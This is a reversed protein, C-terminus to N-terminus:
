AGTMKQVIQEVSPLLYQWADGIPIFSDEGTIREIKVKFRHEYFLTMLTESISGTERGEDVILIRKCAKVAEIIADTNLPSLWCLDILRAKITHKNELRKIAQRSLFHGNGYSIIALDEGTGEIGIEGFVIQDNGDPYDNLFLNDGKHYLDKQHYLAIPELFVVVRQAFYAQKVCEKLMLAAARPTSPCAIIIGPIERLFGIANDNHFHGGFGKQYALSPIRVVMPNTYQGSSFFSLTAAEGRLQDIANHTYALFQIEPISLLGQHAMGIATGLITQEDLLTDFVRNVGFQAQLDATVRYVGGKKGVDEGFIVAQPYQQLIESLALNIMQAMNKPQSSPLTAKISTQAIPKPNKPPIISAMVAVASNLRPERSAKEAKAKVESRADEYQSLVDSSSMWNEQIIQRASHLLPDDNEMEEIEKVRHYHQEIDSGAHGLLRVMKLHLFVPEGKRALREALGAKLYVDALNLGDAFLYHWDPRHQMMKQIWDAPTPVSIGLGNDECILVLPLPVQKHKVWNVANLTGQLTSHNFSADGFSGLVVSDLPLKLYNKVSKLGKSLTLAFATGFVKPLHSAITSTQPPVNLALSGFVKHRGGSMPDSAAAVLSLLQDTVGDIDPASRSRSLMFASSRYHLFAIDTLRFQAAIAANCEHGTSGITYFGLGKERLVRAEFDIHRTLLMCKLLSFYESQSLGAEKPSTVSKAKPFDALAVREIFRADLIKARDLDM